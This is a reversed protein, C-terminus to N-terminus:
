PRPRQQPAGSLDATPPPPPTPIPPTPEAGGPRAAGGGVGHVFDDLRSEFWRHRREYRAEGGMEEWMATFAPDGAVVRRRVFWGGARIQDRLPAVLSSRDPPLGYADAVLRLRAVPDAPNWGLRGANVPEDIPVCMRALSALDFVRRGPAAFDFDLLAVARGDRFVVNEPCVDHHCVVLDGDSPAVREAAAATGSAAAVGPEAMEDDWWADGPPVFGVTADHFRRLLRAVSALAEDTQSWAPFPPCPVDGPVFSLRERGDPDVGLPEPVGDFGAARVHRLLAHVTATHRGSPRVVQDGWREVQGANGVGGALLERDAM